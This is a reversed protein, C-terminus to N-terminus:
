PLKNLPLLSILPYFLSSSVERNRPWEGGGHRKEAKESDEADMDGGNRSRQHPEM